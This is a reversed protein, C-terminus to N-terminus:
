ARSSSSMMAVATSLGSVPHLRRSWLPRGRWCRWAQCCWWHLSSPQHINAQPCRRNLRRYWSTGSRPHHCGCRSRCNPGPPHVGLHHYLRTDRHYVARQHRHRDPKPHCHLYRHLQPRACDHHHLQPVRHHLERRHNHQLCHRHQHRACRPHLHRIQHTHLPLCHHDLDGLCHRHLDCQEARNFHGRPLLHHLQHRGRHHLDHIPNDSPSGLNTTSYWHDQPHAHLPLQHNDSHNGTYGILWQGSVRETKCSRSVSTATYTVNGEVISTAYPCYTTYSTVVETTEYTTPSPVAKSSSNGWANAAGVLAAAAFIASKM